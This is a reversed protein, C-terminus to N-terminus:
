MSYIISKQFSFYIKVDSNMLFIYGNKKTFLINYTIFYYNYMSHSKKKEIM